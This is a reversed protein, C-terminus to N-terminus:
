QGISLRFFQPSAGIANTVTVSNGTGAITVGSDTWVPANLNTTSQLQYNQDTITPWTLVLLSGGLTVISLDPQAVVTLTGNVFNFSYNTASLTGVSVTIPYSGPPSGATASTNLDPTGTLVLLVNTGEDDVFGSYSVTLLPNPLGYTRSNNVASVTLTAQTINAALDLASLVYNGSASGTLGLGSVSVVINNGANAIDFSAVYGNTSLSVNGADGALVGSLVVANSSITAAETGDYVKSNATLGSSITVSQATINAALGGPPSLLYNGSATGTLSLGSVSVVINNGANASAFSAVYGNTSLNVNGADSALVGSLVVANSSITAAETGDYVKSNATLGSSITVGQATINAALGGPPSLLYNGSASGTLTLGSVIVAINNGANPSAFSAAYGNTSLNVNGADSALVGNLVVTNSSIAATVTGDYVKFNAILGSSITVAQATINATAAPQTLIYNGADNGNLTLGAIQVTKNTGVNQDTFIGNAGSTNLTVDSGILGQGILIAESVNLAATATGDYVKDAATIGTVTLEGPNVTMLFSNTASMGDSDTVIVRITSTGITNPEPTVTITCDTGSGGFVIDTNANVLTPNSSTATLVLNSAPTQADEIEFPIAATATNVPTSQDPIVSVTPPPPIPLTATVENSGSLNGAADLAMVLYNNTADLTAQTDSFNTGTPTGIQVFNTSGAGVSREIVYGVVGVNDTSAGWSLDIESSSAVTAILNTPESPPTTDPNLNGGQWDDLTLNYGTRSYIGIGPSGGNKVPFPDANVVSRWVLVPTDNRYMTITVPDNSGSVELKMTDGSQWTVTSGTALSFYQYVNTDGYRLYIRYDNQSFVFGMYFEDQNTDARLVVGTWPGITSLYIQSYQDNSFNNSTWCAETHHDSEAPTVADSAIVFTTESAAPYAWNTGLPGDPRNFDDGAIETTQAEIVGLCACFIIVVLWAVLFERRRIIPFNTM